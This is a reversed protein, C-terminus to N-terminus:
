KLNVLDPRTNVCEIELIITSNQYINRTKRELSFHVINFTENKEELMGNLSYKCFLYAYFCM